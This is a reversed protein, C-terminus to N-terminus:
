SSALAWHVVAFAVGTIYLAGFLVNNRKALWLPLYIGLNARRDTTYRAALATLPCTWRNLALMAIELIIITALVAALDHRGRWAALPVGAACALLLAWVITHALKVIVLARRHQKVAVSMRRHYRADPPVRLALPIALNRRSNRRENRTVFALRGERWASM